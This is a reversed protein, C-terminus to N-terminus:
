ARYILASKIAHRLNEEHPRSPAPNGYKRMLSIPHNHLQDAPTIPDLILYDSGDPTRSVLIVWHQEASSHYYANNPARDVQALVIHGAALAQDIRAIPNQGTWESWPIDSDPWSRVNRGKTLGSHLLTPAAFQVNSGHFGNDGFDRLRRNLELPTFPLGYATLMMAHCTLLCGWAGITQQGHGLPEEHWRQDLQSYWGAPDDFRGLTANLDSPFSIIRAWIPAGFFTGRDDQLRWLSQYTTPRGERVSPAVMPVTLIVEEDRGTTPVIHSAVGRAMTLDGEVFVLRFSDGWHRAGTNRVRWQKHFTEGEPLRTDDPITHDAVFAMDAHHVGSGVVSAPIVTIEAYLSGFVNGEPDQLAWRSRYDRGPKEPATMTLAIAVEEGPASAAPKAVESLAFSSGDLM